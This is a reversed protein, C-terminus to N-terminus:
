GAGSHGMDAAVSGNPSARLAWEGELAPRPADSPGVAHLRTVAYEYLVGGLTAVILTVADADLVALQPQTATAAEGQDEGEGLLLTPNRARCGGTAGTADTDVARSVLALAAPGSGPPLRVAAVSPQPARPLLGGAVAMAAVAPGQSTVRGGSGAAFRMVASLMGAAV